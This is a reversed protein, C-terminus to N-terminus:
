EEAAQPVQPSEAKSSHGLSQGSPTGFLDWRPGFLDRLLRLKFWKMSQSPELRSFKSESIELGTCKIGSSELENFEIEDPDLRSFGIGAVDLESLEIESLDQERSERRSVDLGSFEIGSFWSDVSSWEASM